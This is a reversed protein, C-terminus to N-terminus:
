GLFWLQILFSRKKMVVKEKKGKGSETGRAVTPYEFRLFVETPPDSEGGLRIFRKAVGIYDDVRPWSVGTVKFELKEGEANFDFDIGLASTAMLGMRSRFRSGKCVSKKSQFDYTCEFQSLKQADEVVFKAVGTKAFAAGKEFITVGAGTPSTEALSPNSPAICDFVRARARCVDEDKDVSYSLSQRRHRNRSWM